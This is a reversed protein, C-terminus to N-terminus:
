RGKGDRIAKRMEAKREPTANDYEAKIQDIRAAAALRQAEARAEATEDDTPM